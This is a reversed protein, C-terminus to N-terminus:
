GFVNAKRAVIFGIEGMVTAARDSALVTESLEFLPIARM